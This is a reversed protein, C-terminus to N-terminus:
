KKSVEGLKAGEIVLRIPWHQGSKGNANLATDIREVRTVAEKLKRHVVFYDINRDGCTPLQTSCVEGAILQLWGTTALREPPDQWDAGIVWLMGSEELYGAVRQLLDLTLQHGIGVGDHFYVSLLYFGGGAIGSCWKICVRPDPAYGTSCRPEAM